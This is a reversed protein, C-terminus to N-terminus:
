IYKLILVYKKLQLYFFTAIKTGEILSNLSTEYFRHSLEFITQWEELVESTTKYTKLLLAARTELFTWLKIENEWSVPFETNGLTFIKNIAHDGVLYDRLEEAILFM